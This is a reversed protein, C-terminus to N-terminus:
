ADLPQPHPPAGVGILSAACSGIQRQNTNLVCSKLYNLVHTRADNLHKDGGLRMTTRLRGRRLHLLYDM